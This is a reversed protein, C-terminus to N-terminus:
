FILNEKSKIENVPFQSAFSILSIGKIKSLIEIEGRNMGKRILLFDFNQLEPLLYTIKNDSQYVSKNRILRFQTNGSEYLYNSFAVSGEKIFHLNIDNQKVLRISFAKNLEWALKYERTACIIGFLAFDYYPSIILRNKPM